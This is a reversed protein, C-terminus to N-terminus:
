LGETSNTVILKLPSYEWQTAYLTMELILSCMVDIAEVFNQIM